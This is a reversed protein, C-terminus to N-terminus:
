RQFEGETYLLRRRVMQHGVLLVTLVAIGVSIASLFGINMEFRLAASLSLAVVSIASVVFIDRIGFKSSVFPGNPAPYNAAKRHEHGAGAAIPHESKQVSSDSRNQNSLKPQKERTNEEAKM